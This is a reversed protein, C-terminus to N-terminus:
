QYGYRNNCNLLRKGLAAAPPNLWAPWGGAAKPFNCNNVPV